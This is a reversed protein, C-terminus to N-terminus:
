RDSAAAAISAADSRYYRFIDRAFPIGRDQALRSLKRTLHYDFPGHMDALPITVGDELSHQGPACVANDM